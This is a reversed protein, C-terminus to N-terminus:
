NKGRKKKQNLFLIIFEMEMEGPQWNHESPPSNIIRVQKIIPQPWDPQSSQFMISKHPPPPHVWDDLARPQSSIFKNNLQGYFWLYYNGIHALLQWSWIWTKTLLYDTLCDIAVDSVCGFVWESPTSCSQFPELKSAIWSLM